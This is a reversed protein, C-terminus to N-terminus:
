RRKRGLLGVGALALLGAGAPTPVPNVTQIFLSGSNWVGDVAGSIDDYSEFFELRLIGDAGVAFDPVGADALKIIGGSTYNTPGGPTNDNGPRLFLSQTGASDGFAVRLESRWSAGLATLVVDWGIGNIINNAGVQIDVITNGPTGLSDFSNIGTVDIPTVFGSRETNAVGTYGPAAELFSGETSKAAFASGAAVFVLAASLIKM